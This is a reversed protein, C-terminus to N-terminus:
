FFWDWILKLNKKGEPPSVPRMLGLFTCSHSAARWEVNEWMGLSFRGSHPNQLNQGLKIVIITFPIAIQQM